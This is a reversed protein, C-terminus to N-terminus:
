SSTTRIRKELERCLKDFSPSRKRCLTLDMTHTMAPQDVPESYSRGPGKYHRQVWGKDCGQKEPDDPVQEGQLDLFGPLSEAAAVFWTEYELNAFVCAVDM